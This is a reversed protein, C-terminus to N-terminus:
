DLSAYVVFNQLLFFRVSCIKSIFLPSVVFKQLGFFRVSCVKTVFFACVVFKVSVLSFATVLYTYVFLMHLVNEAKTDEEAQFLVFYFYIM